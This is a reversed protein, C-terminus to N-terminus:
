SHRFESLTEKAFAKFADLVAKTFLTAEMSKAKLEDETMTDHNDQKSIVWKEFLEDKQETVKSAENRLYEQMKTTDWKKAKLSAEILAVQALDRTVKDTALKMAGVAKTYEDSAAQHHTENPCCCIHTLCKCSWVPFSCFSDPVARGSHPHFSHTLGRGVKMKSDPLAQGYNYILVRGVLRIDRTLCLGVLRVERTLCLGVLKCKPSGIM